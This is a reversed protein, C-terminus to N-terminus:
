AAAAKIVDLQEDIHKMGAVVTEVSAGSPYTPVLKLADRLFGDEYNFVEVDLMCDGDFLGLEAWLKLHWDFPCEGWPAVNDLLNGRTVPASAHLIGVIENKVALGLWGALTEPKQLTETTHSSDVLLFSEPGKDGVEDRVMQVFQIASFGPTFWQAERANLPEWHVGRVSTGTGLRKLAAAMAKAGAKLADQKAAGSPGPKGILHMWAQPPGGVHQVGTEAALQLGYFIRDTGAAATAPNFPCSNPDTNIIFGVPHNKKLETVLEVFRSKNGPDYDTLITLGVPKGAAANLRRGWQVLGLEGHTGQAYQDAGFALTVAGFQPKILNKATSSM